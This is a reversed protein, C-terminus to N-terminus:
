LFLLFKPKIDKLVHTYIETTKIYSHGLLRSVTVISVINEFLKTAYTHRLAHFKKYPIGINRLARSGCRRLNKSNM